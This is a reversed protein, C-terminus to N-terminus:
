VILASPQTWDIETHTRPGCADACVLRIQQARLWEAAEGFNPGEWMPLRFTSGMAGRLAKPSFLDVTGKTVILGNAGAAEAARAVSGANAPNNVGHLIVLLPSANTDILGELHRRGGSPKKALVIIGQPTKTEALNNFIPASVSNIRRATTRLAGLLQAGRDDRRLDESYLVFEIDLSAQLAEEALRVGEIFLLERERGERIARARKILANDRSEIQADSTSPLSADSKMM